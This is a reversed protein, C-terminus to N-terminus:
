ILRRRDNAPGTGVLRSVVNLLQPITFPKEIVPIGTERLFTGYEMSYAQATVFVLRKLVRSHYRQIEEYVERGDMGPMNLDCLILDYPNRNIMALGERGDAVTQVDHGDLKLSDAIVDRVEKQDDIVLIRPRGM